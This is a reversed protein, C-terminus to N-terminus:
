SLLCRYVVVREDLLDVRGVTPQAGGGLILGLGVALECLV